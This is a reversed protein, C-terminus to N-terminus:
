GPIVKSIKNFTKSSLGIDSVILSVGMIGLVIGLVVLAIRIWIAGDTVGAVARRITKALNDIAVANDTDFGTANKILGQGMFNDAEDLFKKYAGNNYTAWAKLGQSDYVAKAMEANVSPNYKLHWKLGFRSRHVDNIQFLGHDYTGNSNPGGKAKPDGDSEARAIAVMTNVVNNPFGALKVNNAIQPPSLKM